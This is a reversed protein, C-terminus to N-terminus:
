ERRVKSQLTPPTPLLALITSPSPEKITTFTMVMEQTQQTEMSAQEMSISLELQQLMYQEVETLVTLLEVTLSSM